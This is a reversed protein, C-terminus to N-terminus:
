LAPDAGVPEERIGRVECEARDRSSEAPGILEDRLHGDGVVVFEVEPVAARVKQAAQLFLDVRKVQRDLNAVIGVVPQSASGRPVRRSSSSATSFSRLRKSVSDRGTREGAKAVVASNAIFGDFWPYVLRLQAVKAPTRWFGM